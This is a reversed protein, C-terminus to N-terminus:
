KRTRRRAAAAGALAVAAFAALAAVATMGPLGAGPAAAAALDLTTGEVAKVGLPQGAADALEEVQVDVEVTGATPDNLQFVIEAVRARGDPASTAAANFRVEGDSIQRSGVEAPVRVDVAELVSADYTIRAQFAYGDEPLGTLVVPVVVTGPEGGLSPDELVVTVTGEVAAAKLADLIGLAETVRADVDALPGLDDLVAAIEDLLTLLRDVAEGDAERLLAENDMITNKAGQTFAKAEGLETEAEQEDGDEKALFYGEYEELVFDIKGKLNNVVADLEGVEAGGAAYQDLLKVVEDAAAEAAARDGATTADYLETLRRVFEDHVAEGLIEVVRAEAPYYYAVGEMAKERATAPDDDWHIFVEDVESRVKSLFKATVGIEVGDLREDTVKNFADIHGVALAGDSPEEFWGFKSSVVAFYEAGERYEGEALEHHAVRYAIDLIGKKLVQGQVAVEAEDGADHAARVDEFAQQIRAHADPAYEEAAHAFAEDYVAEAADVDGAGLHDKFTAFADAKEMPASAVAYHALLDLIEEAEHEAEELNGELAYELLEDLEHTLRDETETGLVEAVHDQIGLYYYRAEAAEKVAIDQKDGALLGPTEFTEKYVKHTSVDFYEETLTAFAEDLTEETAGDFAAEADAVADGFKADLLGFWARAEEVDGAEVAAEVNAYAIAYHAKDVQQQAAVYALDDTSGAQRAAALGDEVAQKAAPARDAADRFVSDYISEAGDVDGQGLATKLDNWEAAYDPGGHGSAAALPLAAITLMLAAATLAPVARRPM